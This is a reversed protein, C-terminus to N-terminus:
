LIQGYNQSLLASYVRVRLNSIYKFKFPNSIKMQQQIKTNMMNTYTQFVAMCRKALASAYYIPVNRLETHNQWYEDSLCSSLHLLVDTESVKWVLVVRGDAM